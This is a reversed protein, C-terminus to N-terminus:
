RGILNRLSALAIIALEVIVFWGETETMGASRLGQGPQTPRQDTPRRARLQVTWVRATACLLWLGPPSRTPRDGARPRHHDRDRHLAPWPALVADVTDLAARAAIYAPEAYPRVTPAKGM